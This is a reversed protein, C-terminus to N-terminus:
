QEVAGRSAKSGFVLCLSRGQTNDSDLPEYMCVNWIDAM